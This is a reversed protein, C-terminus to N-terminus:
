SWVGEHLASWTQQGRSGCFTRDAKSTVVVRCSGTGRGKKSEGRAEGEGPVETTGRRFVTADAGGEAAAATLRELVVELQPATLRRPGWGHAGGVDLMVEGVAHVQVGPPPLPRRPVSLDVCPTTLKPPPPLPYVMLCPTCVHCVLCWWCRLRPSSHLHPETIASVEQAAPSSM